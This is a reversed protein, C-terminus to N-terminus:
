VSEPFLLQMLVLVVLVLTKKRLNLLPQQVLFCWKWKLGLVNM